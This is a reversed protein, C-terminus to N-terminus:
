AHFGDFVKHLIIRIIDLFDAREDLLVTAQLSTFVYIAAWCRCAMGAADYDERM